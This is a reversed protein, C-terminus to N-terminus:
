NNLRDLVINALRRPQKFFWDHNGDIIVIDNVEKEEAVVTISDTPIITDAIAGILTIKNNTFTTTFSHDRFSNLSKVTKWNQGLHNLLNTFFLYTGFIYIQMMNYRTIGVFANVLYNLVLKGLSIEIKSISPSLIIM